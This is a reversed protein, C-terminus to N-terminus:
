RGGHQADLRLAAALLPRVEPVRGLEVLMKAEERLYTWASETMEAPEARHGAMM